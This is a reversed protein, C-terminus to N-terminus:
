AVDGVLAAQRLYPANDGAAQYPRTGGRGQSSCVGDGEGAEGGVFGGEDPVPGEQERLRVFRQWSVSSKIACVCNIQASSGCDFAPGYDLELVGSRGGYVDGACDNAFGAWIM